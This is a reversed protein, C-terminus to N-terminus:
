ASQLPCVVSILVVMTLVLTTGGIVRQNILPTRPSATYTKLTGKEPTQTTYHTHTHHTHITHTHLIHTTTHTYHPTHPYHLTNHIHLTHTYTTQTHTYHITNHAYTHTYHKYDIHTYHTHTNTHTHVCFVREVEKIRTTTM